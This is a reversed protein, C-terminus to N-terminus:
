GAWLILSMEEAACCPGARLLSGWSRVLPVFAHLLLWVKNYKNMQEWALFDLPVAVITMENEQSPFPFFSGFQDITVMHLILSESCPPCQSKSYTKIWEISTMCKIVIVRTHVCVHRTSHIPFIHVPYHSEFSSAWVCVGVKIQCAFM